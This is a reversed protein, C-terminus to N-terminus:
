IKMKSFRAAYDEAKLAGSVGERQHTASFFYTRPLESYWGPDIEYRLKQSNDDAFVWNDIDTLRYKELLALIETKANPEDTSLMVIKLEPRNKHITSLLEMDKICSSCDLSWIVLMFGHNATEALIQQYSGPLFPKIPWPDALCFANCSLLLAAIITKIHPNLARM